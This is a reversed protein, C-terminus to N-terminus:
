KIKGAVRLAHEHRRAAIDAADRAALYTARAKTSNGEGVQLRAAELEANARDLDGKRERVAVAEPQLHAHKDIVTGRRVLEALAAHKGSLWEARIEAGASRVGTSSTIANGDAVVYRCSTRSTAEVLAGEPSGFGIVGRTKLDQIQDPAFHRYPEVTDGADLWVVSGDDAKFAAQIRCRPLVVWREGTGAIARECELRWAVSDEYSSFTPAFTNPPLPNNLPRIPSLNM